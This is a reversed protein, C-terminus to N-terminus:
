RTLRDSQRSAAQRRHEAAKRSDGQKEYYSALLLHAGANGPDEQLVAELLALAQKAQGIDLLLEARRVRVAPLDAQGARTAVQELNDRQVEGIAQRAEETQGTRALALGLYYRAEHQHARDRAIVERLLPVAKDSAGAEHYLIARLLVGRTFQPQARILDDLLAQAEANRGRAHLIRAQLYILWPDGPKQQRCRRCVRDAEEFNGVVLLLWVLNQATAEDDPDLELTRQADALALEEVRQKEGETKGGSATQHLLYMRLRWSEAEAPRLECWRDLLPQAEELRESGLLGRALASLVNVDGADYHLAARLLPEAEDFRGQQVLRLAEERTRSANLQRWGLWAVAGLILVTAALGCLRLWRRM